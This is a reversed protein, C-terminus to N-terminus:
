GAPGWWRLRDVRDFGVGDYFGVADPRWEDTCVRVRTMGASRMDALVRDFVAAALGRRLHDPHTGVPELQAIGTTEDPWWIMFAAVEGDPAVAVVDRERDYVPSRMFRLYRELHADDDMTSRFARHSARRRSDAEHEGELHRITYGDAVVAGLPELGRSFAIMAEEDKPALGRALLAAELRHDSVAVWGVSVTSRGWHDLLDIRADGGFVDVEPGNPDFVTIADDGLHYESPQRRPDEHHVWWALDGPHITYRDPDALHRSLVAQMAVLDDPSM